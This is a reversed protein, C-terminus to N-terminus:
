FIPKGISQNDHIPAAMGKLKLNSAASSRGMASSKKPSGPVSSNLTLTLDPSTYGDDGTTQHSAPRFDQDQAEDASGHILMETTIEEEPPDDGPEKKTEMEETDGDAEEKEEDGFEEIEGLESKKEKMDKRVKMGRYGAQLKTAAQDEEYEKKRLKVEKRARM